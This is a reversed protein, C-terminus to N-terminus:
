YIDIRVFRVVQRARGAIFVKGFGLQGAEALGQRFAAEFASTPVESHVNFVHIQQGIARAAAQVNGLRTEANPNNANLLVAIVTVGPAIESEVVPDVGDM